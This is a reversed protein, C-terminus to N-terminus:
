GFLGLKKPRRKEVTNKPLPFFVAIKLGGFQSVDLHLHAGHILAIRQVISLGLGSGQVSQSTEICRHFRKLVNVYQDEPIGPGSDEVSLQLASREGTVSIRIIGEKPTYKIANGVLNRILINLLQGNGVIPVANDEIFEMRIMKKHAEPELDAVVQIVESGLLTTDKTLFETGSEIRSFILLQQVMATMRNVGQEIRSLAQRTTSDDKAKLAVQAQTLLGALPTRLEHSADATFRREHEFARELQLFLNNLENVVPVIEAPIKKTSLPKLYSAERKALQIVLQELPKLARGVILWIVVGLCPLGIMFPTILHKSIDDKLEKRIDDRQGVHIIYDSKDESISFVHWLYGNISTRSFGNLAASLPLIPASESRLILGEHKYILQFALKKEYRHSFANPKITEARELDWLRYLTSNPLHAVFSNLSRASQALEADFLESVEKRIEWYVKYSAAGLIILSATLLAFLLVKRLSYNM